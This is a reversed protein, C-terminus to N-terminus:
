VAVKGLATSSALSDCSPALAAPRVREPTVREEQQRPETERSSGTGLAAGFAQCWGPDQKFLKLTAKLCFSSDPHTDERHKLLEATLGTLISTELNM